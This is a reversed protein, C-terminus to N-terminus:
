RKEQPVRHTVFENVGCAERVAATAERDGEWMAEALRALLAGHEVGGDGLHNTGLNQHDYATLSRAPRTHRYTENHWFAATLALLRTGIRAAVGAKTRAKHRELTLQGKLTQIISETIQRLPRLFKAGPRPAETRTAPRLLTIGANNLDAEFAQSRCRNDAILTQGPRALDAADIMDACVDREDAKAGALAFAVRLGAPTAVLHLRLGWFWRSHSACWGYQAWGALGSRKQTERSTGCEVPTSDVLWVDDHWSECERALCGMVGAIMDGSRRLRKNYGDRNPFYPFWPRLHAHAYRVFQSENDYGLLASIVALTVLEADSLKPAFGVM